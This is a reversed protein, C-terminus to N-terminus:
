RSGTLAKVDPPAALPPANKVYKDLWAIWRAWQDLV